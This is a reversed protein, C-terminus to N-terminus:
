RQMVSLQKAALRSSIFRKYKNLNKILTQQQKQWPVSWPLGPKMLALCLKLEADLDDIHIFEPAPGAQGRCDPGGELGQNHYNGLPLTIGITTLGYITAATAECSGGDMIRKQHKGPLVKRQWMLCYRSRMPTLYRADIVWAFWRAKELRPQSAVHTISRPQHCIVERKRKTLWGLEFHGIAGVFGVEEGRTLLGVFPTATKRRSLTRAMQLITYVGGLDDAANTYLKKGQQWVPKRFQFSGFVSKVAPKKELASTLVVEASDMAWRGKVLKVKSLKGEAFRGNDDALYVTAGTVHKVPTGGHWKVLLRKDSLWRQGHFGPHDMHAMFLRVPEQEHKQLLRKYETASSVGIVINGVPDTFHVIGNRTLFDIAQAAILQERFPATPQSLLDILFKKQAPSM